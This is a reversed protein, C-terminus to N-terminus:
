RRRAQTANCICSFRNRVSVKSRCRPAEQTLSYSTISTLLPPKPLKDTTESSTAVPHTQTKDTATADKASRKLREEKKKEKKDKKSAVEGSENLKRETKGGQLSFWNNISQFNVIKASLKSQSRTATL